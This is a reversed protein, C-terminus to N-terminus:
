PIFPPNSLCLWRLAKSCSIFVEKRQRWGAGHDWGALTRVPGADESSRFTNELGGPVLGQWGVLRCTDRLEPRHPLGAVRFLSLCILM